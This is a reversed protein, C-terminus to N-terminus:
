TSNMLKYIELRNYLRHSVVVGSGTGTHEVNEVVAQQALGTITEAAFRDLRGDDKLIKIEPSYMSM